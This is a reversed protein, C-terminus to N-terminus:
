HPRAIFAFVVGGVGLLLAAEFRLPMTRPRRSALTAMIAAFVGLYLDVSRTPHTPQHALQGAVVGAYIAAALLLPTRGRAHPGFANSDHTM